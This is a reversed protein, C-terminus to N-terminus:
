FLTRSPERRAEIVQQRAAAIDAVLTRRTTEYADGEQRLVFAPHLTAITYRAYRSAFWKGRDQMIKFNKHIVLSAAPGGLCLIVLPQIIDLTQRLWPSCAEVEEATPVRNRYRGAELACARCRIVNTLYIHKRTISNERLCEDLLMGSRGVFPRGTADENQGPGEGILLLPAEPDGEGFVVHSRTRSLACAVCVSARAAVEALREAKSPEDREPRVSAASENRSEATEAYLESSPQQRIEDM